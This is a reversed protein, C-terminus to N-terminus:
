PLDGAIDAAAGAPSIHNGKSFFYIFYDNKYAALGTVNTYPNSGAEYAYSYTMGDSTANTVNMSPATELLSKYVFLAESPSRVEFVFEESLMSSSVYSARWLSIVNNWFYPSNGMPTANLEANLATSNAYQTANYTGGPGSLAVFQDKTLVISTKHLSPLVAIAIIAIIIIAAVILLLIIRNVM